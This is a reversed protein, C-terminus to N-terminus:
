VIVGSPAVLFGSGISVPTKAVDVLLIVVVAPENDKFIQQLSLQRASHASTAPTPQQGQGRAPTATLVLAALAVVWRIKGMTARMRREGEGGPNVLAHFQGTGPNSGSPLM